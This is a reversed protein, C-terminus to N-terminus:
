WHVASLANWGQSQQDANSCPAISATVAGSHMRVHFRWAADVAIGLNSPLRGRPYAPMASPYARGPTVPSPPWMAAAGM